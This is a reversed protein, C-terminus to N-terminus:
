LRAAAGGGKGRRRGGQCNCGGSARSGGPVVSLCGDAQSKPAVAQWSAIFRVELQRHLEESNNATSTEGAEHAKELAANLEAIKKDRTKLKKMVDMLLRGREEDSLNALSPPLTGRKEQMCLRRNAAAHVRMDLQLGGRLTWPQFAARGMQPAMCQAAAMCFVIFSQM